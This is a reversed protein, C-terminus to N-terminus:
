NKLPLYPNHRFIFGAEVLELEEDIINGIGPAYYKLEADCPESLPSSEMLVLVNEYLEGDIEVETIEMIEARDQAVDEAVEQYYRAGVLITGPILIGPTAGNEGVRWTGNHNIVEGDEYFDVDEGFYYIDNTASCIAFYNRAVEYLEGDIFEREEIVRTRVGAVMETEDLVTIEVRIFEEDEEGELVYQWGPEMIFYPNERSLAPQRDLFRCDSTSFNESYARTDEELDCEEEDQAFTFGAFGLLLGFFFYQFYRIPM